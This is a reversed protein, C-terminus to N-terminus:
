LTATPVSLARACLPMFNPLADRSAHPGKRGPSSLVSAASRPDEAHAAQPQRLIRRLHTLLSVDERGGWSASGFSLPPVLGPAQM